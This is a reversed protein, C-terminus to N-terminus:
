LLAKCIELGLGHLERLVLDPRHEHLSRLAPHVADEVELDREVHEALARSCPHQPPLRKAREISKLTNRHSHTTYSTVRAELRLSDM